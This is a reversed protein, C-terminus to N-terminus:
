CCFSYCSISRELAAFQDVSQQYPEFVAHRMLDRVSKTTPLSAFHNPRQTPDCKVIPPYIRFTLKDTLESWFPRRIEFLLGIDHNSSLLRALDGSCDFGM